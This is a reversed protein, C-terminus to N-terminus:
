DIDDIRWEDRWPLTPVDGDFVVPLWVYDAEETEPSFFVREIGATAEALPVGAGLRRYLDPGDVEDPSVRPLWRDALAIYLDKKGPHRFVSSVQSRHSTHTPDDRHPDGLVTWPGHYSSASAVESPNPFYSSTGSTILYHRLGRRFHAPAERTDPPQTGPFHTSYYGTSGVFDDTLDACIVESHPREFYMYAKGDVPDVVLDFDGADMGAVRQGTAIITYPGLFHEATLITSRQRGDDQMVKVWAVYRGTEPHRIIHPRDMKSSRHLPSAPDDSPPIILGLDEWNYLDRSRYCRVGQHWINADPDNGEKNEGYWYFDDGEVHISGGHAQIRRGATDLWPQGPRISDYTM